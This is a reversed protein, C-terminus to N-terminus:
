GEKLLLANRKQRRIAKILNGRNLRITDPFIRYGLFSIGRHVPITRAVPHLSLRYRELFLCIESYWSALRNKDSDFLLLDDVYRIYRRCKLTEVIFHDLPTLYINAFYQSTLNGIPLGCRREYPTFLDDGPYYRYVEEQPNSSDIILDILGLTRPCGIKKRIVAKLIEHDISPFYKIVDCKLYYGGRKMYRQCLEVAKHTGKGKRNAFSTSMFSKELIPMIINCLAHHVVRDRFPAASIKRKKSKYIYFEFYSGPRYKGSELEFKLRILNDPLKKNFAIVNSSYRKGLSAKRAAEMLNEWSTIRSYLNKYTRM